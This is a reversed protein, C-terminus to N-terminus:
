LKKDGIFDFSYDLLEKPHLDLGKALEILTTLSLNTHDDTELKHIKSHDVDCKQSLERYSLGQQTRYKRLLVRFSKLRNIDKEKM